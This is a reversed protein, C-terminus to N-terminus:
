RQAGGGGERGVDAQAAASHGVVAALVGAGSLHHSGALSEGPGAQQAGASGGPQRRRWPGLHAGLSSPGLGWATAGQEPRAAPLCSVVSEIDKRANATGM